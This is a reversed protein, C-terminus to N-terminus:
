KPTGGAEQMVERSAEDLAEKFSALRGGHNKIFKEADSKEAFAWKAIKTMVGAKNGGIVWYAKEVDILKRTDRDAVDISKLKRSPNQALEIAVCHLSCFGAATGNDYTVLMRSFGYAKRDMGCGVCDRHEGIDNQAYLNASLTMVAMIVLMCASYIKSKRMLFSRKSSGIVGSIKM